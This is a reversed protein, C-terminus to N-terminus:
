KVMGLIQQAQSRLSARIAAIHQQTREFVTGWKEQLLRYLPPVLAGPDACYPYDLTSCVDEVKRFELEVGIAPVSEILALCFAHLRNGFWFSSEAIAKRTELGDLSFSEYGAAQNSRHDGQADCFSFLKVPMGRAAQLFEFAEKMWAPNTMPTPRIVGGIYPKKELNLPETLFIPDGLAQIKTTDLGWDKLREFSTEGRVSISSARDWLYKLGTVFNGKETDRVGTGFIAFPCDRQKLLAILQDFFTNTGLLSGGGLIILDTPETPNTWLVPRDSLDMFIRMTEHAMYDDCLEGQGYFGFLCIRLPTAM